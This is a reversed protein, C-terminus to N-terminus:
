RRSTAPRCSRARATARSRSASGASTTSSRRSAPASRRSCRARSTSSPGTRSSRSRRRRSRATSSPRRCTASGGSSASPADRLGDLPMAPDGAVLLRADALRRTAEIADALGKYPRIVGLALLTQGDDARTAASPYVPHPIVRADVGLERSRRAAASAHPRRRPRLARAAAALPRAEGGDAAAAPRARHLGVARPVAAHVDVQPLALWQVHLSTPARARSRRSRRRPARGGEAAAAAALAPLAAVLAPLLARARRYGDPPPLEGFRFRSTALEVDAGAARAGGRARPRVVAHVRASRRHRRARATAYLATSTRVQFRKWPLM